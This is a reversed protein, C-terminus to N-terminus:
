DDQLSQEVVAALAESLNDALRVHGEVTPHRNDQFLMDEDGVVGSLFGPVFAVGTDEAIRGYIAGFDRAYDGLSADVDIGLLLPTAGAARVKAVIARLNSETVDLQVGRLGDNSGFQIVVVDPESEAITFATRALGDTSTDGAVGRNDLHFPSGEDVLRRQVVAPYAETPSVFLGGSISDGLFMVTPSGEPVEVVTAENSSGDDAAGPAARETCASSVLLVAISIASLASTRRM